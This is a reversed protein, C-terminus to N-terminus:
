YGCLKKECSKSVNEVTLSYSTRKLDHSRNQIPADSRERGDRRESYKDGAFHLYLLSAISYATIIGAVIYRIFRHKRKGNHCAMSSRSEQIFHQIQGVAINWPLFFLTHPHKGCPVSLYISWYGSENIGMFCVDERQSQFSTTSKLVKTAYTNNNVLRGKGCPFPLIKRKKRKGSKM